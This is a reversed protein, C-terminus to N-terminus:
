LHNRSPPPAHTSLFDRLAAILEPRALVGRIGAHTAGEVVVLRVSPRLRVLADLGAKMPDNTGVIALTPVTVAAAAAPTMVHDARSRTVAALALPDETRRCSASLVKLSDDAPLAVGAPSLRAMLSRSICEREMEAADEEAERAQVTDWTFRGSGAILTASLFREPRLTLLQSVIHGGMSYGVIHARRIGLHDLLRVVDLGMERGYRAADHPKDSKGHGRMDFALVRYNRALDQVIGNASWIEATNAFGHVLVVPEGAGREVYRLRVGGADFYKDQASGLSPALALAAAVAALAVARIGRTTV